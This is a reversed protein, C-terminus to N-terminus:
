LIEAPIRSNEISKRKRAPVECEAGTTSDFDIPDKFKKLQAAQRELRNAQTMIYAINGDIIGKALALEDLIVNIM